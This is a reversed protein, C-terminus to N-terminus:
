NANGKPNTAHGQPCAHMIPHRKAIRALVLITPHSWPWEVLLEYDDYWPRSKKAIM